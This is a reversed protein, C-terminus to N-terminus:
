YARLWSYTSSQQSLASLGFLEPYSRKLPVTGELGAYFMRNGAGPDAARRLSRIVSDECDPRGRPSVTERHLDRAETLHITRTAIIADPNIHSRNTCCAVGEETTCLRRGPVMVLGSPKLIM